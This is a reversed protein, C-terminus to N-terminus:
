RTSRRSSKTKKKTSKSKKRPTEARYLMWRAYFWKGNHDVETNWRKLFEISKDKMGKYKARQRFEWFSTRDEPGERGFLSLKINPNQKQEKIMAEIAQERTWHKPEAKIGYNTKPFVFALILGRINKKNDGLIVQARTERSSPVILGRGINDRDM